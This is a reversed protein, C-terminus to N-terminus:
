IICVCRVTKRSLEASISAVKRSCDLEKAEGLHIFFTRASERCCCFRSGKRGDGFGFTWNGFLTVVGPSFVSREASHIRGREIEFEEAAKAMERRLKEVEGMLQM